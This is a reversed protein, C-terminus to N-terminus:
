EEIREIIGKKLLFDNLSKPLANPELLQGEGLKYKKMDPGIFEPLPKRVKYKIKKRKITPEKQLESFFAERHKRFDDILANLLKEEEDALDEVPLGTKVTYIAADALKKERLEFFRKITNKVNELETIDSSTQKMREKKRLYEKIENMFNDPLKELKKSSREKRELERIKEFTLM